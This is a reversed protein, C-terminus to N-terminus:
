WIRCECYCQWRNGMVQLTTPKDNTKIPYDEQKNELGCGCGKTREDVFVKPEMRM